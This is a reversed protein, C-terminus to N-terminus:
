PYVSSLKGHTDICSWQRKTLINNNSLYVLLTMAFFNKFQSKSKILEEQEIKCLLSHYGEGRWNDFNWFSKCLNNEGIILKGEQLTISFFLLLFLLLFSLLLLYVLFLFVHLKSYRLSLFKQSNRGNIKALLKGWCSFIFRTHQEKESNVVAFELVIVM